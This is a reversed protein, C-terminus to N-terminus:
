GQPVGGAVDLTWAAGAKARIEILVTATDDNVPLDFWSVSTEGNSRTGVETGGCTELVAFDTNNSVRFKAGMDELSTSFGDDKIEISIWQPGTGSVKTTTGFGDGIVSGSAKATACTNSPTAPTPETKPQAPTEPTAPPTTTKTPATSGDDDDAKSKSKDRDATIDDDNRSTDPPAACAVAVAFLPLLSLLRANM